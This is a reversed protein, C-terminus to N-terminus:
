WGEQPKPSDDDSDGPLKTEDTLGGAERRENCFPVTFARVAAACVDKQSKGPPATMAACFGSYRPNKPCAKSDKRRLAELVAYRERCLNQQYPDNISKCSTPSPNVLAMCGDFEERASASDNSTRESWSKCTEEPHGPQYQKCFDGCDIKKGAQGAERQCWRRCRPEATNRDPSNMELHLRFFDADSVCDRGWDAVMKKDGFGKLGGLQRCYLPTDEAYSRCLQISYIHDTATRALDGAIGWQPAPSMLLLDITAPRLCDVYRASLQIVRESSGEGSSRTAPALVLLAVAMLPAPMRM